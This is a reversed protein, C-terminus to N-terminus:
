KVEEKIAFYAEIATLTGEKYRSLILDIRRLVEETM